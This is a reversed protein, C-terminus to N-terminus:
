QNNSKIMQWLRQTQCQKQQPQLWVSVCFSDVVSLISSSLHLRSYSSSLFLSDCKVAEESVGSNWVAAVLEASSAAPLCQHIDSARVSGPCVDSWLGVEPEERQSKLDMMKGSRPELSCWGPRRAEGSGERSGPAKVTPTHSTAVQLWLILRRFTFIDEFSSLLSSSLCLRRHSTFLSLSTRLIYCVM